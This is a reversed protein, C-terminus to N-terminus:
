RTQASMIGMPRIPVGSSTAAQTSNRSDSLAANRVPTSSKTSPPRMYSQGQGGASFMTCFEQDPATWQSLVFELRYRRGFVSRLDPVRGLWERLLQEPDVAGRV